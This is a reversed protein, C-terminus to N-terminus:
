FHTAEGAAGIVISVLITPKRVDRAFSNCVSLTLYMINATDSYTKNQTNEFNYFIYVVNNANAPLVDKPTRMYCLHGVDTRALSKVFASILNM